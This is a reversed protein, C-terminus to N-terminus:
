GRDVEAFGSHKCKPCENNGDWWPYPGLSDWGCEPCQAPIGCPQSGDCPGWGGKCARHGLCHGNKSVRVDLQRNAYQFADGEGAFTGVKGWGGACLAWVEYPLHEPTRPNRRSRDRALRASPEPGTPSFAKPWPAQGLFRLLEASPESRSTVEDVAVCTSSLRFVKDCSECVFLGPYAGARSGEPEYPSLYGQCSPCWVPSPCEAAQPGQCGEFPLNAGVPDRSAESV